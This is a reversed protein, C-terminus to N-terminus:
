LYGAIAGVIIAVGVAGAVVVAVVALIRARRASGEEIRRVLLAWTVGAVALLLAGVWAAGGIFIAAVVGM